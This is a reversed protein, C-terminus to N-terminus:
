FSSLRENGYKSSVCNNATAPPLGHIAAHTLYFGHKAIAALTAESLERQPSGDDLQLTISKEFRWGAPCAAPPLKAAESNATLAYLGTAGCRFVYLKKSKSL